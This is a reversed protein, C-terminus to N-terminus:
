FDLFHPLPPEREIAYRLYRSSGPHTLKYRDGPLDIM